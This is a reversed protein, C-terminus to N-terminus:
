TSYRLVASGDSILLFNIASAVIVLSGLVGGVGIVSSVYRVYFERARSINVHGSAQYTGPYLGFPVMLAGIDSPGRIHHGGFTLPLYANFFDAPIDSYLPIGHATIKLTDILKTSVLAQVVALTAFVPFSSDASTFIVATGAVGSHTIRLPVSVGADDQLLQVVATDNNAINPLNFATQTTQSFKWWNELSGTNNADVRRMGIFLTETPWKLKNLLLEQDNLSCSYVQERHVRILTFGIRKIFIKHIEANVFINNIYLVL